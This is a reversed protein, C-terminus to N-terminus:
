RRRWLGAQRERRRRRGDGVLIEAAAGVGVHESGCDGVLASTRGGVEAEPIGAGVRGTAM